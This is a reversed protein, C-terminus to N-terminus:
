PRAQAPLAATVSPQGGMPMPTPNAGFAQMMAIWLDSQQVRIKMGKLDAPKTVPKDSYVNRTGADMWGLAVLRVQRLPTEAPEDTGLVRSVGPTGADTVLAVDAGRGNPTLGVVDIVVVPRTM